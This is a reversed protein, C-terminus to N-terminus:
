RTLADFLAWGIGVGLAISVGYAFWAATERVMM